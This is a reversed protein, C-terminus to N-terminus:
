WIWLRAVNYETEWEEQTVFDRRAWYIDTERPLPQGYQSSNVLAFTGNIQKYTDVKLFFGSEHPLSSNITEEIFSSNQLAFTGSKEMVALLDKDLRVTQMNAYADESYRAVLMFSAAIFIVLISIALIADINFVFGKMGKKGEM